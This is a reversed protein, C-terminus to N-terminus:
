LLEIGANKCTLRLEAVLMPHVLLLKGGPAAPHQVWYMVPKIFTGYRKLWKKQMRRHHSPSKARRRPYSRRQHVEGAADSIYMRIQVKPADPLAALAFNMLHEHGSM